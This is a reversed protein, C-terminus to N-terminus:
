WGCKRIWEEFEQMFERIDEQTKLDTLVGEEDVKEESNEVMVEPYNMPFMNLFVLVQRLHYQARAGGLKSISASMIAAPKEEWANQGFPRSAWDIANKLFGPVSYNYEPTVFLIGDANKISSKLREIVEPPDYEHDQDFLPIASLEDFTDIVMGEPALNVAARILAKNTSKERLSGGIGLVRVAGNESNM